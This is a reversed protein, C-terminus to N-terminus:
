RYKIGKEGAQERLIKMLRGDFSDDTGASQQAEQDLYSRREASLRNLEDLLQQRRKGVTELHRELEPKSLERLEQPLSSREVEDLDVEGERVQELLDDQGLAGAARGAYEARDAAAPVAMADLRALKEQKATHREEGGVVMATAALERSLDAMRADLPTAVATVGGSQEISTFTGEASRAIKGFLDATTADSGCRVTNIIIGRTVAQKCIAPYDKGDDYDLHPPADGVLFIVKLVGDDEVSWNLGYVADHLAANVHEPADGGGDAQFSMLEAHVADLDDTLAFKRTIFVDGRDRYAVLGFRLEPAPEGSAIRNAISWIKSKAGEILGSMSGTTDLVFAVEVRPRASAPTSSGQSQASLTSLLTSFAILTTIFPSM